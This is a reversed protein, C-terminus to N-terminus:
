GARGCRQAWLAGAVPAAPRRPVSAALQARRAACWEASVGRPARFRADLRADVWFDWRRQWLYRLGGILMVGAAFSTVDETMSAIPSLLMALVGPLPLALWAVVFFWAWCRFRRVGEALYMLAACGLGGLAAMTVCEGVPRGDGVPAVLALALVWAACTHILLILVRGLLDHEPPAVGLIDPLPAEPHTPGDM